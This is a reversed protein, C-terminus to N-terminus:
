NKQWEEILKIFPTAGGARFSCSGLIEGEPSILLNFPFYGEPNYKEALMKNHQTLEDSLRNKKRRPFDANVLVLNAAAYDKFISDAFIEKKQRICPGCWDSGSFVLLIAKNETQSQNQAKEWDTLWEPELSNPQHGLALLMSFCILYKIM